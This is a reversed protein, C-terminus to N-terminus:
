FSFSAGIQVIRPLIIVNAATAEGTFPRMFDPGSRVVRQKITNVNMVNFIDLRAEISRSGGLSFRKATRIDMLNTDPLSFTGVPEVNMVISRIQRGGTFLVQRAQPASTRREFNLSAIIEYPFTYAGSVKGTREWTDNASNFEMNPNFPCRATQMNTAGCTFPLHM